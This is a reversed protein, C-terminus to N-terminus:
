LLRMLIKPSVKEILELKEQTTELTQKSAALVKRFDSILQDTTSQTTERIKSLADTADNKINRLWRALVVVISDLSRAYKQYLLM